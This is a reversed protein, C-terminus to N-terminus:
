NWVADGAAEQQIQKGKGKGESVVKESALEKGRGGKGDALNSPQGTKAAGIEIAKHHATGLAQNWCLLVIICSLLM